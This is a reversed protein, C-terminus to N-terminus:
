TEDPYLAVLAELAQAFNFDEILEIIEGSGPRLRLEDVLNLCDTDQAKLMRKLKEIFEFEDTTDGSESLMFPPYEAVILKLETIVANLETELEALQQATIPEKGEHLQKEIKEATQQLLVKGLQAANTKLNHAVRYALKMDGNAIADRLESYRNQNNKVFNIYLKPRLESEFKEQQIEDESQWKIPAFYRMLCSWLEQSTFPKSVHDNMGKAMYLERDHSMINATMAVVPTKIGLSLIHEAAEIGDMEPMHIDM